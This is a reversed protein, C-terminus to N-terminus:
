HYELPICYPFRQLNKNEFSIKLYLHKWNTRAGHSKYCVLFVLPELYLFWFVKYGRFALDSFRVCFSFLSVNNERTAICWMRPFAKEGALLYRLFPFTWDTLSEHRPSPLDNLWYLAWRTLTLVQTGDRAGIPTPIHAITTCAQSVLAPCAAM